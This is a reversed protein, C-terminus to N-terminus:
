DDGPQYLAEPNGAAKNISSLFNGKFGLFSYGGANGSRPIVVVNCETQTYIKRFSDKRVLEPLNKSHSRASLGSIATSPGPSGGM